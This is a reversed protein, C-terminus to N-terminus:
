GGFKRFLFSTVDERPPCEITSEVIQEFGYEAFLGRLSDRTYYRLHERPKLHKWSSYEVGEPKIPLSVAIHDALRFISELETFDPIHELVDWMTVVDYIQLEIGTQPYEGIDYSWVDAWEKPRWARFGGCGCGFDLVKIRNNRHRINTLVFQWRVDCIQKATASYERLMKEYYELGYDM